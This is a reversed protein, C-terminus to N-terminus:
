RPEESQTLAKSTQGTHPLAAAPRPPNHPHLAALAFLTTLQPSGFYLPVRGLRYYPRAPWSGDPRQHRVLAARREDQAHTHALNNAAITRLALQLPDDAAEQTTLYAERQVLATRLADTLPAIHATTHLCLRSAAHLFADPSPYYRTGHRYRGSDLHERVYDLTAAMTRHCNETLASPTALSMTHLANACVVPDHKRGRPTAGPEAGDDWYVMVVGPHLGPRRGRETSGTAPPAAADGLERVVAHLRHRPMAGHASLGSAAHATCDTDAAFQGVAPFFRFRHQWRSSDVQRVLAAGATPSLCPAPLVSLALMASFAEDAPNFGLDIGFQRLVRARAETGSCCHHFLRDTALQAAPMGRGEVQHSLYSLGREIAEEAKDRGNM